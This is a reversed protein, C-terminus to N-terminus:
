LISFVVMVISFVGFLGMGVNCYTTKFRSEQPLDMEANEFIIKRSSRCLIIFGIVAAVIMGIVYCLFAILAPTIMAEPLLMGASDLAELNVGELLASSVVSGLLNIFMHLGISYRLKGSKLYVYGFVLGLGFAYFFQNFNGHFLGFMLASTVVALKQGYRNMRDILLKRFIYEEIVPALIVLFLVKMVLSDAMAYTTIAADITKGTIKGLLAVMLNGLINGGYMMFLSIFVAKVMFGARLSQKPLELRPVTKMILIGLPVAVLYIPAFTYVWMSWDYGMYQPFLKVVLLQLLTASAFIVFCGLGLRSFTKKARQQEEISISKQERFPKAKPDLFLPTVALFLGGLGFNLVACILAAMSIKEFVIGVAMIAIDPLLGFYIFMILVVQKITAGASPPTSLNIFAGANSGFFDISLIVPIWALIELPNVGFIITTVLLAPLVDLLCCVTGAFVSWFLKKEMSEPVMRFFDMSTDETLPNGLTRYFVFVCVALVVPLYSETEVVLKCIASVALVLFLYTETTKTLFGFHAFRFRNYLIRYFFVNAGWGHNMGDRRLKESRGKKRKLTIGTKKESQAAELAEAVEESKAMADEYFDARIRWIVIVLVIGGALIAALSVLSGTLNAEMTYVCFAKLWGWFPFFRTVPHNFFAKAAEFANCECSKYYLWFGTVLFAGILYIGKRIYKKMGSNTSTYTYILVQFLKGIAITFLWTLLIGMAAGMSMGLNIILNPIQFALYVSSLLIVGMQTLLRFMLVSQPKMPSAFLLNVDAPLFIRSGNKDASMIQFVFVGLIVAGVILEVLGDVDEIPIEEETTEIEEIVETENKSEAVDELTAAGFGILGGILMCALLFILVWSKLLKKLQNKLSHLAYYGFLRM